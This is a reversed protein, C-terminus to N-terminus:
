SVDAERAGGHLRTGGERALLDLVDGLRYRAHGVEEDAVVISQEEENWVYGRRTQRVAELHGRASWQRIRDYLRPISLEGDVLAVVAAALPRPRAVWTRAEDLIVELHDRAYTTVGCGGCKVWTLGPAVYTAVKCRKCGGAYWGPVLPTLGRLRAELQSLERVFDACWSITAISTLHATFAVCLWAVTEAPDDVLAEAVEDSLDSTLVADAMTLPRPPSPRDNTLKEARKLLAALVQDLADSIRDGTGDRDPEGQYLVRSGPVPRSGTRGPRWRALNRFYIPLYELDLGAKRQCLECLALGNTTDARCHDCRM